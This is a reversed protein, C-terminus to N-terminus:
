LETKNYKSEVKDVISIAIATISAYLLNNTLILAIWFSACRRCTLMYTILLYILGLAKIKPTSYMSMLEGVFNTLTSLVYCIIITQLLIM